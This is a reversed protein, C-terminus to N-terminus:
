DKLHDRHNKRTKRMKRKYCISCYGDSDNRSYFSCAKDYGKCEKPNTLNEVPPPAARKIRKNTQHQVFGLLKSGDYVIYDDVVTKGKIKLNIDPKDVNLIDSMLDKLIGITLETENFELLDSKFGTCKVIIM